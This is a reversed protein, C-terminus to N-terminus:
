VRNKLCKREKKEGGKPFIREWLSFVESLSTVRGPSFIALIILRVRIKLRGKGKKKSFLFIQPLPPNNRFLIVWLPLESIPTEGVYSIVGWSYLSSEGLFVESFLLDEFVIKNKWSILAPSCLNWFNPFDRM